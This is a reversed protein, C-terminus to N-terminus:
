DVNVDNSGTCTLHQMEHKLHRARFARHLVM